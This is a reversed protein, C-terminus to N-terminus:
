HYLLAAQRLTEFGVNAEQWDRAIRRPDEGSRIEEVLARSGGLPHMDSSDWAQPYLAALASALEVGLEPSDLQDRNVVILNVGQCLQGHYRDASPTFRIPLFRVGPLRRANLYAALQTANVWPAGMVEFPTDTGRGVSVNTYEIMGVGPYLVAEELSRLNPSPAVWPLGTEDFYDGRSWGSMPIVMLDAGISQNFLRALEGVTMGNRVPMGPFYGVFSKEEAALPPGSVNIGDIPDPRDLVIVPLHHAAAAQLTYALTTEYTYFRVGADQIDYVLTDVLDLGAAPLANSATSGGYASFIPVGTKADRANGTASDVTGLWGHEPSFGATVHVGQAIMDDINRNGERDIGTQNTILGVRKGQLVDFHRGALVDLGTAVEGNRYMTRHAGASADAYGTIRELGTEVQAWENANNLSLIASVATAIGSRLALISHLPPKQMPHIANSMIIVYTASAPDIWMSTGTFGTHGFSGLPLYDGRNSSFPSDIDWGLGRVEPVNYPSQPTSMKAVSLGTLIRAGNDGKGGNLLAQAYKALDDATSFAGADGTVGGMSEATPDNVVGREFHGRDDKETPATKARWSAPPLYRTHTMGLPQWVHTLAYQDIREGSLKRVLEALVVFNIDSYEFHSGAPYALATAYAKEVGTDYGFWSPRQPIDPPLGSYHTLLERITVQDKGNRAFEPLYKAVPDNLRFRGQELLQMISPTVAVVKTLSACDFITDLTMKEPHPLLARDGFAKRYVIKDEHGVVVVAGPMEGLDISHLVLTDLRSWNLTPAAIKAPPTKLAIAWASIGLLLTLLAFRRFPM